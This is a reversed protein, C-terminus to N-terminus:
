NLWLAGVLCGFGSRFVLRVLYWLSFVSLLDVFTRVLNCLKFTFLISMFCLGAGCAMVVVPFSM